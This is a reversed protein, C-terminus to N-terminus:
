AQYACEKPRNKRLGCPKDHIVLLTLVYSVTWCQESRITKVQRPSRRM